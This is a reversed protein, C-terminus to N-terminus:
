QEAEEVLEPGDDGQMENDDVGEAQDAAHERDYSERCGQVYGAASVLSEVILIELGKENTDTTRSSM